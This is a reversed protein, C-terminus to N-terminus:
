QAASSDHPAKIALIYGFRQETEFGQSRLAESLIDAHRHDEEFAVTAIDRQEIENIVWDTTIRDKRGDIYALLAWRSLLDAKPVFGSLYRLYYKRVAVVPPAQRLGGLSIAIEEPVLAPRSVDIRSMLYQAAYYDPYVVKYRGINEWAWNERSVALPGAFALLLIVSSISAVKLWPRLQQICALTGIGLALLLPVPWSWFIRWSLVDAVYLGLLQSVAPCLLILTCIFTYNCIWSLGRLKARSALFPLLLLGLLALNSRDPGLVRQYELYLTLKMAIPTQYLKKVQPAVTESAIAPVSNLAEPSLRATAIYDTLELKMGVAALLVVLSAALGAATTWLSRRSWQMGALLAVGAALPGVFLATLSFGAGACQILMLLTWNRWNPNNSYALASYVIMPLAVLLYIAKGQYLRVFGFNGYTRPADGWLVLLTVLSALAVLASAPPLFRRLLLWQILMGITAWFSPMLVYYLSHVSIGSISSLMAIFYEYTQMLHHAQEFLPMGSRYLNDFGYLPATPHDLASSALSVFFADDADPRLTGMTILVAAACIVVLALREWPAVDYEGPECSVPSSRFAVSAVFLFASALGWFAWNSETLAHIGVILFPCVLWFWSPLSNLRGSKREVAPREFTPSAPTTRGMLFLILPALVVPLLSYSVLTSFDYRLLILVQAYLTWAGFLAVVLKLSESLM